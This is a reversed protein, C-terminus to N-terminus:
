FILWVPLANVDGHLYILWTKDKYNWNLSKYNFYIFYKCNVM